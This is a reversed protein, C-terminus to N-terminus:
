YAILIIIHLKNKFLYNINTNGHQGISLFRPSNSMNTKYPDNSQIMEYFIHLQIMNITSTGYNCMKALVM